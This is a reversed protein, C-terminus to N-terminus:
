FLYILFYGVAVPIVGVLFFNLTSKGSSQLDKMDRLEQQHSTRGSSWRDSMTGRKSGFDIAVGIALSGFGCYLLIRGYKELSVDRLIFAIVAATLFIIAEIIVLKKIFKM